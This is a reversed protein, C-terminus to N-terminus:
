LGTAFKVVCARHKEIEEYQLISEITPYGCREVIPMVIAVITLLVLDGKSGYNGIIGNETYFIEFLYTISPDFKVPSVKTKVM